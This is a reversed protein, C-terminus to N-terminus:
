SWAVIRTVKAAQNTQDEGEDVGAFLHPLPLFKM